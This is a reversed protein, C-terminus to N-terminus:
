LEPLVDEGMREVFELTHDHVPNLHVGAIADIDELRGIREIWTEPPGAIAFRETLYDTLGLRDMLERNTPDDGLGMHQESDYERVLERVDEKRDDPVRKGEFTFQLAHHASAAVSSKLNQEIEGVDDALGARVYVWKTVEGPERGAERAGEDVLEVAREVVEPTVGLGILVRDAVAGALKLTKPGEATLMVPVNRAAERRRLWTLGFESGDYNIREGRTLASFGEVFARFEELDAPREGLTYVASDGSGLGLVARGGSQEQLTSLAGATVALHRTVPNTVSPGLDIRDTEMAAAGLSTHLEPLLCQSDGLGLFDFGQREAARVEELFPDSGRPTSLVGVDMPGILARSSNYQTNRGGATVHIHGDTSDCESV